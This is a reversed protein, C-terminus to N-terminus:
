YKNIFYDESIWLGNEAMQSYKRQANEGAFEEIVLKKLEEKAM